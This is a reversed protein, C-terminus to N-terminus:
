KTFRIAFMGYPAVESSIHLTREKLKGEVGYCEVERYAEDLEVDFDWISDEFLNAFFVVTEKDDKKCIQYIYPSKRIVPFQFYFELIQQQRGYSCFLGSSQNLSYADFTFVLFQTEGNDYTYSSIVKKDDLEIYSGIEAYEKVVCNYYKGKSATLSIRTDGFVEVGPALLGEMEDASHLGVDVGKKQLRKAAIIDLIMRKPMNEVMDVNVNCAIGCETEDEYHVPIGLSTLFASAVPLSTAMIKKQDFDESFKMDAFKRKREYVKIGTAVKENFHRDLFEYLGANKQYARAYGTEYSTPSFYDFFYKLGDMNGSAVTAADFCELYNAPVQYRARPYSDAEHFCEIGEGRCWAEQERAFEIISSLRMGPFRNVTKAVWYPASTFRLFPKQNGALIHSLEAADVGELDWSTYGACFGLRITPDVSDITERVRRCFKRLTDGMVDLWADRLENGEGVFLENALTEPNLKKGIRQELLKMHRDCFCGIGPRVSLCLDDDLMFLAPKVTAIDAVYKCYVSMYAEDEPCFADGGEKGVVSKIKTMGQSKEAEFNSLPNGFGFSNIWVGAEIGHEEFYRLHEQLEKLVETRDEMFLYYRNMAIFLRETQTEKLSALYDARNEYTLNSFMVPASLKRKM